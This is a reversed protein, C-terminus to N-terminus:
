KAKGRVKRASALASPSRRAKASSRPGGTAAVPGADLRQVPVRASSAEAPRIVSPDAATPTESTLGSLGRYASAASSPTAPNISERARWPWESLIQVATRRMPAGLEGDAAARLARALEGASAFRRAVNKALGIALVHAVDRPIHAYDSPNPPQWGTIKALVDTADPASFAPRGTLARYAVSALAFVDSRRDIPEGLAQEPSMYGPTGITARMTLVTEANQIKSVGFDLVKWRRTAGEEALFINQPKLDRHIIGAQHAADLADAVEDVMWCSEELDLSGCHRLLRALDVGYLLEMVLFPCGDNSWGSDLVKVVHPSDLERLVQIERFFRRVSSAQEVLPRRLLKVAVAVGDLVHEARYVEGMGGRGVLPGLEFGGVIQGSRMEIDRESVASDSDSPESVPGTQAQGLAQEIGAAALQRAAAQRRALWLALALAGEYGLTAAVFAATDARELWSGDLLPLGARSLAAIVLYGGALVGYVVKSSRGLGWAYVVVCCLASAVSTVGLEALGALAAAVIAGVAVARLRPDLEHPARSMLVVVACVLAAAAHSSLAVWRLASGLGSLALMLTMGASIAAAVLLAARSSALEAKRLEDGVPSTESSAQKM